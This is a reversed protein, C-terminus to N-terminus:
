GPRNVPARRAASTGPRDPGPRHAAPGLDQRLRAVGRGGRVLDPRGPRRAHLRGDVVIENLTGGMGTLGRLDAHTVLSGDPEQRLVLGEPGSTVVLRGDPLWDISYPITTPVSAVVESAGDLDVAVIEQTLWNSLWLRGDHWRPSEGIALGELLVRLERM